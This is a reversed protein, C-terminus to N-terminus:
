QHMRIAAAAATLNAKSLLSPIALHPKHTLLPQGYCQQCMLWMM